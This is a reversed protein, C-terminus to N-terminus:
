PARSPCSRGTAPAVVAPWPLSAAPAGTVAEWRSPSPPDGGAAGRVLRAGEAPNTTRALIGARSAPRRSGKSAGSRARSGETGAPLFREDAEASTRAPGAWGTPTQGCAQAAPDCKCEPALDSSTLSLVRRPSHYRCRVLPHPLRVPAPLSAGVGATSASRDRAGAATLVWRVAPAGAKCDALIMANRRPLGTAAELPSSVRASATLTVGAGPGCHRGPLLFHPEGPRLSPTEIALDTELVGM